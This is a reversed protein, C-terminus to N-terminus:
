PRLGMAVSALGNGPYKLQPSVGTDASVSVGSWQVFAWDEGM